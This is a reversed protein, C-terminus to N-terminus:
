EKPTQVGPHARPGRAGPPPLATHLRASVPRHTHIDGLSLDVRVVEPARPNPLCPLVAGASPRHPQFSVRDMAAQTSPLRSAM